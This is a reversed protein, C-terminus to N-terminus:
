NHRYLTYIGNETQADVHYDRELIDKIVPEKGEDEFLRFAIVCQIDSDDFSDHITKAFDDSNVSMWQQLTFYRFCPRLLTDLYFRRPCDWAVFSERDADTLMEVLPYYEDEYREYAYLPQTETANRYLRLGSSFLAIIAVCVAFARTLGTLRPLVSKGSLEAFAVYLFPLLITGYHLYNNLSYLFLTSPLAVALWFLGSLKKEKASIFRWIEAAALIWGFLYMRATVLFQVIGGGSVSDSATKMYDMNFILTGYWMDYLAGHCAFYVSFPVTLIAAGAIFALANFFLNKWQAKTILTVTILATGICVGLANTARTLLAFAFTFGYLAAYKPSHSCGEGLGDRWDLMASYSLMLFPLIYEETTNGENWNVVLFLPLLASLAIAIKEGTRNKLMAFAAYEAATIFVIQVAFVGTKGGLAYGVANIFFIIPGKHDFLEVYPLYGQAWYKGITQFMASDYGWDGYLPSTTQSFLLVGAFASLLFLLVRLATKGTNESKVM